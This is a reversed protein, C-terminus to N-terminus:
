ADANELRLGDPIARGRLYADVTMAKGGARQISEPVLWGEGTAIRLRTGADYEVTGAPVDIPDAEVHAALIRLVQGAASTFAGPKPAYARIQRLLVDAPQQWDLAARRRDFKGALSARSHDQESFDLTGADLQDLAAEIAEAALKAIRESLEGANETPGIEIERVLAIAGADMEREVRMVSVGTKKDGALIAAQIPAAGRFRPLLSAHANMLFGLRPLERIRKAIFQGFAVVIGVDPDLAELQEVIEGVKEPRFLPIGAEIARQAVPTPSSKRGRGRGRDPQSVVGVVEFRGEILMSLSPVALEPTGFFLIRM